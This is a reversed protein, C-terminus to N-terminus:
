RVKQLSDGPGFWYGAVEGAGWSLVFLSILPLSQLLLATHGGKKLITSVTRFLLLPPLVFAACGYALRTMFPRGETRMGAYSRSYLFRQSFYLWFTYHMKHGVRIEPRCVLDIGDRRLTDHLHNEWRGEDLTAQHKELLARRYVVNNGVLWPVKGAPLPPLAASYECLFAAWDMLSDRAANEVSGGVVDAGEAIAQALQRAWGPPVIVHDEIVAVLDGTAAKIAMARLEPITSELPAAIVRTAPFRRRVEDRVAEGLRDAVLVELRVDARQAELAQLCGALDDLSNVSPVVVSLEPSRVGPQTM